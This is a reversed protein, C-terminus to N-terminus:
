PSICVAVIGCAGLTMGLRLRVTVHATIRASNILSANAFVMIPLKEHSQNNNSGIAKTVRITAILCKKKGPLSIIPASKTGQNITPSSAKENNRSLMAFAGPAISAFLPNNM